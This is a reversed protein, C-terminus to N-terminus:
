VSYAGLYNGMILLIVAVAWVEFILRPLWPGTRLEMFELFILRVKILALVLIVPVTIQELAQQEVFLASMTTIAVLILWARIM